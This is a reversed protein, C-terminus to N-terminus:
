KSIDGTYTAKNKNWCAAAIHGQKNCYNCNRDRFRCRYQPHGAKNCRTCVESSRQNNQRHNQNSARYNRNSSNGYNKRFHSHDRDRSHSRSSSRDQSHSRHHHRSDRTSDRSQRSAELSQIRETLREIAHVVPEMTQTLSPQSDVFHVSPTDLSMCLRAHKILEQLNAPDKKVIEARLRQPLGNQVHDMVDQETKNLVTSYKRVKDVFQEITEGPELKLSQLLQVNLQRSGETPIFRRRFAAKVTAFSARENDPLHQYWTWAAGELHRPFKGFQKAEDWKEDAGIYLYKDLWAGAEETDKSSDGSFPKIINGYTNKESAMEDKQQQQTEGTEGTIDQQQHRDAEQQQGDPNEAKQQSQAQLRTLPMCFGLDFVRIEGGSIVLSKPARPFQIPQKPHGEAQDHIHCVVCSM